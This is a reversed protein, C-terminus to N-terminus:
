FHYAMGISVIPFVPYRKLDENLNHVEEKLFGQAQANGAFNVCGDTTCATGTLAVSIQPAGTYAVGFEVPITFHRRVRPIINGYGLILLPAFKHPYIVSSSGNMPDDVSNVFTQTGLVFTAGPAVSAPASMSSKMYLFGPSIHFGGEGRPFWDVTTESSKLHLKADYNVGDINFPDEFAFFNVSSRLNIRYAMPTALEIGLGLTDAKFGIAVSRFPRIEQPITAAPPSPIPRVYESDPAPEAPAPAIPLNSTTPPKSESSAASKAFSNPQLGTASSLDLMSSGDLAPQSSPTSITAVECRPVMGLLPGTYPLFRGYVENERPTPPPECKPTSITPSLATPPLPSNSSEDKQLEAKIPQLTNQPPDSFAVQLKPAADATSPAATAACLQPTLAPGTYPTYSGYVKDEVLVPTQAKVECVPQPLEQAASIACCLALPLIRLVAAPKIQRM